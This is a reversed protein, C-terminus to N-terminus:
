RMWSTMADVVRAIEGVGESVKRWRLRFVRGTGLLRGFPGTRAGRTQAHLEALAEVPAIPQLSTREDAGALAVVVANTVSISVRTVDLEQWPFLPQMQEVGDDRTVRYSSVDLGRLREPLATGVPVPDFQITRSFGRITTGDTLTLEDTVYQWGARIAELALSSKGSGSDGLLLVPHQRRVITAAHLLTEGAHWSAISRYIAAEVLPAIRDEADTHEPPLDPRVLDYGRDTRAIHWQHRQKEGQSPLTCAGWVATLTDMARKTLGDIRLEHDPLYLTLTSTM